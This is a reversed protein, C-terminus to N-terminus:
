WVRVRVCVCWWWWTRAQRWHENILRIVARPARVQDPQAVDAFVVDVMPVLMRYKQAPAPRPPPVATLPQVFPAFMHETYCLLLWPAQM